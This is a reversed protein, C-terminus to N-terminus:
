ESHNLGLEILHEILIEKVVGYRLHRGQRCSEKLIIMTM